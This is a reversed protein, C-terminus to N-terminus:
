ERYRLQERNVRITILQRNKYDGWEITEESYARGVEFGLSRLFLDLRRLIHYPQVDILRGASAAALAQYMEWDIRLAPDGPQWKHVALLVHDKRIQIANEYKPHLMPYYITLRETSIRRMAVYGATRGVSYRHQNWLRLQSRYGQIDSDQKLPAYLLNIREILMEVATRKEMLGRILKDFDREITSLMRQLKDEVAETHEFFYRRKRSQLALIDSPRYRIEDVRWWGELVENTWLSM